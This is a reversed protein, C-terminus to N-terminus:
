HQDAATRGPGSQGIWRIHVVSSTYVILLPVAGTENGDSAEDRTSTECCNSHQSQRHVPRRYTGDFVFIRGHQTTRPTM